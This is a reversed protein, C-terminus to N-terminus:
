NNSFFSLARVTAATTLDTRWGGRLILTYSRLRTPTVVIYFQITTSATPKNIVNTGSGAVRVFLTDFNRSDFPIFGTVETPAVNSFVNAGRRWSYIDINPVASSSYAFNAFRIRCTTDSPIVINDTVIRQKAANVTDYMFISYYSKSMLVEAFSMVPQTTAPLTDKILFAHYGSNVAIKSPTSPFTAAYAFSAGTVQAGDVYVYNRTSSLTANYVQIFSKNSFNDDTGQLLDVPPRECSIYLGCIAIVGLSTKIINLLKM